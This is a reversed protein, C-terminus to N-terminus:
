WVRRAPQLWLVAVAWRALHVGGWITGSGALRALNTPEGFVFDANAIGGVIVLGVVFGLLMLSIRYGNLWKM